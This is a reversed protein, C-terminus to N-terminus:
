PILSFYHFYNAFPLLVLFAVPGFIVALLGLKKFRAKALPDEEGEKKVNFYIALPTVFVSLWFFFIFIVSFAGSGFNM